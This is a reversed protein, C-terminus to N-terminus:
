ETIKVILAISKEKDDYIYDINKLKSENEINEVDIKIEKEKKLFVELYEVKICIILKDKKYFCEIKKLEKKLNEYQIKSISNIILHNNDISLIKDLIEKELIYKKVYEIKNKKNKEIKFKRNQFIKRKEKILLLLLLVVIISLIKLQFSLNDFIFIYFINSDFVVAFSGAILIIIWKTYKIAEKIQKIFWKVQQIVRSEIFQFLQNNLCFIYLINPHFRMEFFLVILSLIFFKVPLIICKRIKQKISEIQEIIKKMLEYCCDINKKNKFNFIYYNLFKKNTDNQNIETNRNNIIETMFLNFFFSFIWTTLLLVILFNLISYFTNQEQINAGNKLVKLISSKLNDYLKMKNIFFNVLIYSIGYSFSAILSFIITFKGAQKLDEIKEHSFENYAEELEQSLQKNETM